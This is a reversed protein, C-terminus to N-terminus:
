LAGRVGLQIYFNVHAESEAVRMVTSDASYNDIQGKREFLESYAVANIYTIIYTHKHAHIYADRPIRKLLIYTHAIFRPGASELQIQDNSFFHSPEPIIFFFHNPEPIIFFFHNPQLIILFFHNPM